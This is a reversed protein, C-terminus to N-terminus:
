ICGTYWKHQFESVSEKTMIIPISRELEKASVTVGKKATIYGDLSVEVTLMSGVAYMESTETPTLLTTLEEVVTDKDNTIKIKANPLANDDNDQVM